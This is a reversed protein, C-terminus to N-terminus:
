EDGECASKFESDDSGGNTGALLLTRQRTVAPAGSTTLGSIDLPSREIRLRSAAYDSGRRHLSHLRGGRPVLPRPPPANDHIGLCGVWRRLGASTRRVPMLALVIWCWLNPM